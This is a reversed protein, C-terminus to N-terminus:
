GQEGNFREEFHKKLNKYSNEIGEPIVKTNGIVAMFNVDGTWRPVIHFHIHDAIGAGAARGINVGINFGHCNMAKKLIETSITVVDMIESKEVNTLDSLDNTHRYPSVMIHGNTYPYLNMIVFCHEACHLVYRGSNCENPDVCFVCVDKKADTTKVYDLRWPAWLRDM